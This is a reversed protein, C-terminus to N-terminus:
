SASRQRKEWCFPGPGAQLTPRPQGIFRYVNSKAAKPNLVELLHINRRVNADYESANASDEFSKIRQARMDRRVVELLYDFEHKFLPELQTLSM